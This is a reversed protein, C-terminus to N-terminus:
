FQITARIDVSSVSDDLEGNALNLVSVDDDSYELNFSMAKNYQYGVGLRLTEADMVDASAYDLYLSWDEHPFWTLETIFYSEDDDILVQAIQSGGSVAGLNAAAIAQDLYIYEASVDFFQNKWGLGISWITESDDTQGVYLQELGINSYFNTGGIKASSLQVFLNDSLSSGDDISQLNTNQQTSLDFAGFRLTTNKHKYSGIISPGAQNSVAFAGAGGYEISAQLSRDGPYGNPKLGFLLPQAGFSVSLNSGAVNEIVAFADKIDVNGDFSPNEDAGSFIETGVVFVGKVNQYRATTALAARSVGLRDEGDGDSYRDGNGYEARILGNFSVDISENGAPKTKAVNRQQTEKEVSVTSSQTQDVKARLEENEKKLELIMQLLEANTPATEALSSFSMAVTMALLSVQVKM